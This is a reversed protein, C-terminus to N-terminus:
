DYHVWRRALRFQLLTLALTILLLVIAVASGYGVNFFEFGNQYLYYVITRTTGSPGGQTLVQIQDFANLADILSVVVLFFTVPSLLPITVHRFLPWLTAGDIEAAEYLEKPISQLAALFFVMNYGMGKWATFLIVAPMAWQQSGLWGLKPLGFTSLLWNAAGVEPEYIWVWIIAAAVTPTIWPSFIATRYLVSGRLKANLMVALVLGGSLSLMMSGVGFYLTNGLVQRFEADTLLQTYNALGVWEKEPRLFDWETFSLYVSYGMPWFWWVALFLFAPVLFLYGTVIDHTRASLRWRDPINLTGVARSLGRLPTM